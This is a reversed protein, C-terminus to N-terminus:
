VIQRYLTALRERMTAWGFREVVPARLAAPDFSSRRAM